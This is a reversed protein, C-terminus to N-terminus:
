VSVSKMKAWGTRQIHRMTYVECLISPDLSVTPWVGRAASGSRYSGTPRAYGSYRLGSGEFAQEAEQARIESLRLTQEVEEESLTANRAFIREFLQEVADKRLDKVKLALGAQM